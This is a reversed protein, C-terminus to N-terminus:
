QKDPKAGRKGFQSRILPIDFLSLDVSPNVIVDKADYEETIAGYSSYVIKHPYWTQGNLKRYDSFHFLVNGYRLLLPLFLDKDVLLKPAGEERDGILYAIRDEFRTLFAKDVNMGVAKLRKLLREPDQALLLFRYLPDQSEGESTIERDVIRLTKTGKHIILRKSPQGAVESRYFAPSRLYIVEGFVKEEQQDLDKVKTLQVIKLTKIPAFKRTMFEIIQNPPLIYPHGSSSLVPLTTLSVVIWFYSIRAM